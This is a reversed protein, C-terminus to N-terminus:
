NIELSPSGSLASTNELQPNRASLDFSLQTIKYIFHKVLLVGVNNSSYRHECQHIMRLTLQLFCPINIDLYNFWGFSYKVLHDVSGVAGHLIFSFM